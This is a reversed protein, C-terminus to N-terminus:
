STLHTKIKRQPSCIIHATFVSLWAKRFVHFAVSLVKFQLFYSWTRITNFFFFTCYIQLNNFPSSFAFLFRWLKEIWRWEGLQMKLCLGFSLIPGKIKFIAILYRRYKYGRAISYKLCMCFFVFHLLVLWESGESMNCTM